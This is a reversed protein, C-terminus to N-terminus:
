SPGVVGDALLGQSKQFALVAAETGPGFNGDILGPSFGMAKLKTQLTVVQAGSAGEQLPDMFGGQSFATAGAKCSRAGDDSRITLRREVERAQHGDHAPQRVPEAPRVLFTRWPLAGL